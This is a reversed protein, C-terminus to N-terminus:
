AQGREWSHAGKHGLERNCYLGGGALDIILEACYDRVTSSCRAADSASPV